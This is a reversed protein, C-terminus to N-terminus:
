RAATVFSSADTQGRWELSILLAAADRDLTLQASGADLLMTDGAFLQAADAIQCAGRMAFVAITRAPGAQLAENHPGSKCTVDGDCFMPNFMLNLDRLPGHRLKSEVRLAGDFRVPLGNPAEQTKDAGILDMGNGEIVTLIRTLGEFRSFPGDSTVDAMSLRWALADGKRCVAIERTVGGGNKWPATKLESKRIIRMALM